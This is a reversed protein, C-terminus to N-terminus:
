RKRRGRRTGERRAVEEGIVGALQKRVPGCSSVEPRAKDLSGLGEQPKNGTKAAGWVRSDKGRKAGGSPVGAGGHVRGEAAGCVGELWSVAEDCAWPDRRFKLKM